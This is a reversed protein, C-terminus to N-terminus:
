LKKLKPYFIFIVGINLLILGAYLLTIGPDKVIKLETYDLYKPNYGSQFLTYGGFNLPHNVEITKALVIKDQEIIKLKSKFAKIRPLFSYVFRLDADVTDYFSPFNAFLWRQRITEDAKKVHVLLAPNNALESRTLANKHSDLYFDPLFRLVEFSYDSGSVSYDKGIEVKFNKRIARGNLFIDLRHDDFAYHELIFDELYVKFGLKIEKNGSYFVDQAKGEYLPMFGQEGFIVTIITGSLIVLLSVHTVVVGMKLRWSKIRTLTCIFLNLGLLFLLFIFWGSHYIDAKPFFTGLGCTIVLLTVIAIALKVSSLFGIIKNQSKNM